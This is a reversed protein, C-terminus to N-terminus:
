KNNHIPAIKKLCFIIIITFLSLLYLSITLRYLLYFIVRPLYVIEKIKNGDQLSLNVNWLSTHEDSYFPKIPNHLIRSLVDLSHGISQHSLDSYMIEQTYPYDGTIDVLYTYPLAPERLIVTQTDKSLSFVYGFYTKSYSVDELSRGVRQIRSVSSDRNMKYLIGSDNEILKRFKGSKEIKKIFEYKDTSQLYKSKTRILILQINYKTLLEGDLSNIIRLYDVALGNSGYFFPKNTSLQLVDRGIALRNSDGEYMEFTNKPYSLVVPYAESTNIANIIENDDQSITRVYGALGSTTDGIFLDGRIAPLFHYIMTGCVIFSVICKLVYSQRSSFFLTLLGSTALIIGIGFKNDPSRVAGFGPLNQTLTFIYGFPMQTGKSFFLSLIFISLLLLVQVSRGVKRIFYIILFAYLSFVLLSYNTDKFFDFFSLVARPRWVTYFIWSSYGLAQYILGGAINSATANLVLDIKAVQSYHMEFIYGIIVTISFLSGCLFTIVLYFINRILKGINEYSAIVAILVFFCLPILYPAHFFFLSTILSNVLLESFSILRDRQSMELIKSIFYPLLGFSLYSISSAIGQNINIFNFLSFNYFYSGLVYWLGGNHDNNAFAMRRFGIISLFFNVSFVLYLLVIHIHKYSFGLAVMAEYFLCNPLSVSSGITWFYKFNNTSIYPSCKTSLDQNTVYSNADHAIIQSGQDRFPAYANIM